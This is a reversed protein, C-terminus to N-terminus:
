FTGWGRSLRSKQQMLLSVADTVRSANLNVQITPINASPFSSLAVRSYRRGTSHTADGLHNLYQRSTGVLSVTM